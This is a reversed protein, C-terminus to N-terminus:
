VRLTLAACIIGAAVAVNLSEAGGAGPIALRHTANAALAASLGKSENGLAIVGPTPQHFNRLDTGGLCAAYIPLKNQALFGAVEVEAIRVRLMSGMSAQVVKPNYIDVCDGTVFIQGIGFWDATRIITGMNGPDQITELLLAWGQQAAANQGSGMAAVLIVETATAMNTIKELEFAAAAFVQAEPHAALLAQHLSLWAETAIVADIRVHADQLWEVANKAGEVLYQGYQNRYKQRSLSQFLKLQNKTM